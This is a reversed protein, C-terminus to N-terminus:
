YLTQHLVCDGSEGGDGGHDAAKSSAGACALSSTAYRLLGHCLTHLSVDACVYINDGHM